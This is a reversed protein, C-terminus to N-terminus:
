LLNLHVSSQSLNKSNLQQEHMLLLYQMKELDIKNMQYTILSVITEYEHDLRNLIALLLDKDSLSEGIAALAHGITKIKLIYDNISLSDKKVLRLQQKLQFSKAITQCSYLSELSSWVETSSECHIVQVLVEKNITSLLGGLLLQDSRMWNMYESNVVPAEGDSIPDSVYKPPHPSKNLFSM